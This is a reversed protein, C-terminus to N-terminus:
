ILKGLTWTSNMSLDLSLATRRSVPLRRLLKRITSALRKLFGQACLRAKDKVFNGSADRKEDYAWTSGIAKAGPPLDVLEWTGADQLQTIETRM